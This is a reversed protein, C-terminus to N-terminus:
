CKQRLYDEQEKYNMYHDKPGDKTEITTKEFFRKLQAKYIKRNKHINSSIHRYLQNPYLEYRKKTQGEFKIKGRWYLFSNQEYESLTQKEYESLIPETFETDSDSESNTRINTTQLSEHEETETVTTLETQPQQKKSKQTPEHKPPTHNDNHKTLDTTTQIRQQLNPTDFHQPIPTHQTSHQSLEPSLEQQSELTNEQNELDNQPDPINTPQSDYRIRLYRGFEYIHKPIHKKLHTCQYIRTGTTYYKNNNRKGTYYTKGILTTYQSLFTRVNEDPLEIPLNEVSIRIRDYYDPTFNITISPLLTHDQECFSLLDERNQFCISIYRHCTSIHITDIIPLLGEEHLMEAVTNHTIEHYDQTCTTVDVTCTRKGYFKVM